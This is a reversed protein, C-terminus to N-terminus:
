ELRAMLEETSGGAISDLPWWDVLDAPHQLCGALPAAVAGQSRFVGGFGSALSIVILFVFLSRLRPLQSRFASM